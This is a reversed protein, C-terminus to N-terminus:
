FMINNCYLMSSYRITNTAITGENNTINALKLMQALNELFAINVQNNEGNLTM